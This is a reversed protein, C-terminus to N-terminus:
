SKIKNKKAMRKKLQNAKTERTLRRQRQAEMTRKGSKISCKICYNGYQGYHKRTAPIPTGCSICKDKIYKDYEGAELEKKIEIDLSEM